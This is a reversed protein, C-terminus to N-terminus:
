IFILRKFRVMENLDDNKFSSINFCNLIQMEYFSELLTVNGEIFPCKMFMFEVTKNMRQREAIKCLLRAHPKFIHEFYDGYTTTLAVILDEFDKEFKACKREKLAHALTMFSRIEESEINTMMQEYLAINKNTKEWFVIVVQFIKERCEHNKILMVKELCFIKNIILSTQENPNLEFMLQYIIRLCVDRYIKLDDDDIIEYLKEVLNKGSENYYQISKFVLSYSKSSMSEPNFWDYMLFSFLNEIRQSQLVYYMLTQGQSDEKRLFDEDQCVKYVKLTLSIFKAAKESDSKLIYEFTRINSCNILSDDRKRCCLKLLRSNQIPKQYSTQKLLKKFQKFNDDDFAAQFRNTQQMKNDHNQVCGNHQFIDTVFTFDIFPSRTRVTYLV